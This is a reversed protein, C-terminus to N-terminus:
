RGGTAGGDKPEEDETYPPNFRLDPVVLDPLGGAAQNLDDNAVKTTDKEDNNVTKKETTKRM